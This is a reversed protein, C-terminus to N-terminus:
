RTLLADAPGMLVYTWGVVELPSWAVLQGDVELHGTREKRLLAELVDKQSFAVPEGEPIEGASRAVVRGLNDLLVAEVPVGLAKVPDGLLGRAGHGVSIDLAAVGAVAGEPTRIPTVCSVLLGQGSEDDGADWHFAKALKGNGYWTEARPDYGEPYDGLGPMGTLIGEETAVYTWVMPAGEGDAILARQAAPDSPAPSAASELLMRLMLPQLANLQRLRGDVAVPDVGPALVNDPHALSVAGGYRTSPALDPPKRGETLFDAVLFYQVAAPPEHALLYEAQAALGALRAEYSQFGSDLLRAQESTATLVAGLAQERAEARWAAVQLAFLGGGVSVAGVAFISLVLGFGLMMTAQRHHSIWRQVRQIPGDPRALVAEDRMFRRVDDALAEVDAYRRAPDVSCAKQVIAVLERPVREKSSYHTMPDIRAGMARFFVEAMNKGSNARKLTVLEFLILGLAFQDSRPDLEDNKAQAQEPSMYAPTGIATGVQTGAPNSAVQTAAMPDDEDTSVPLSGADVTERGGVLKAIGWDMVIVEHYQGVMINDPKLDRHIVGRSHAYHMANCIQLFLELRDHLDHAEDPRGGRDYFARTEALWDKLTKGRILKMAYGVSGDQGVELGYVTVISPHDLQGTVQVETHFRRALIPDKAVRPDMIKFAVNRHLVRDRAIHVEGMAGKGLLGLLDHKSVPLAEAALKAESVTFSVEEATLLDRLQAQTILKQRQVWSAFAALDEDGTEARFKALLTDVDAKKAVLERLREVIL